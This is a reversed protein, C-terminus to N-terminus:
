MRKAESMISTVSIKHRNYMKLVTKVEGLNIEVPRFAEAANLSDISAESSTSNTSAKREDIHVTEDNLDQWISDDDYESMEDESVNEWEDKKDMELIDQVINKLQGQEMGLRTSICAVDSACSIASLKRTFDVSLKRNNMISSKRRASMKGLTRHHSSYTCEAGEWWPSGM